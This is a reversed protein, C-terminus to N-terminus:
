RRRRSSSARPARTSTGASGTSWGTAAPCSALAGRRDLPLGRTEDDEPLGSYVVVRLDALDRGTEEALGRVTALDRALREPTTGSTPLQKGALEDANATRYADDVVTFGLPHWVDGLEAVRRLAAKSSGGIWIPVHPKRACRPKLDIGECSYYKGDYTAADSTWLEIMIRLFEDTMAGREELPLGFAEFEEKLYGPVVGLALRGNALQDLSAVMKATTFPQRYPVVLCAVVLEIRSTRAALYSLLAFPELYFDGIVKAWYTPIFVHDALLVQDYGLRDAAAIVEAYADADFSGDPRMAIFQPVSVGYTLGGQM